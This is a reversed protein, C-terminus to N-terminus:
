ESSIVNFGLKKIEEWYSPYSKVVVEPDEIIVEGTRLCVPALAMAMRHDQYTPFVPIQNLKLTDTGHWSLIGPDKYDLKVGLKSLENQLATIRDTEKIKLSQSGTINFPIGLLSLTVAFTQVMDPNDIFNYEFSGATTSTKRLIAGENKFETSVGLSEFLPLIAADGQLSDKELGEILIEAKEALIAIEYWYSAASWDAEVTIDVPIYKQHPIEIINKIWKAQIGCKNMLGLTLNIYSSSIIENQLELKLGRPFMPAIMLLASIYQSSVSGDIEVGGGKLVGGKIKLPPYGQKETYEIKAGLHRLAEVLKGIPRNKMRESGTLIWKGPCITLYATLFRMATGAHGINIVPNNLSFAEVMVRTDESESLNHIQMRGGTLARIILLRNSISKSSPLKVRGKVETKPCVIRYQMVIRNFKL